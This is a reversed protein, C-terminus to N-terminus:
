PSTRGDSLHVIVGKHNYPYWETRPVPRMLEGSKEWGVDGGPGVSWVAWKLPAQVTEPKLTKDIRQNMGNEIYYYYCNGTDAPYGGPIWMGGPVIADNSYQWGVVVYKYTRRKDDVEGNTRQNFPDLIRHAPIYGMTYLERPMEYYDIESNDICSQRAFPYGGKDERYMEIAIGFQRLDSHVSAIKSRLRAATMVPLLMAALIAIIAIVVLLEILTFAKKSKAQSEM